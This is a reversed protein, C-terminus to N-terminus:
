QYSLEGEREKTWTQQREEQLLQCSNSPYVEYLKRTPFM